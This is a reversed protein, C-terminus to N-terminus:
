LFPHMAMSVPIPDAQLRQGYLADAGLLVRPLPAVLSGASAVGKVIREASSGEKLLGAYGKIDDTLAKRTEPGTDYGNKDFPIIYWPFSSGDPAPLQGYPCSALCPESGNDHDSV